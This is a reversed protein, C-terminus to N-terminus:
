QARYETTGANGLPVHLATTQPYAIARDDSRFHTGARHLYRGDINPWHAGTSCKGTASVGHPGPNQVDYVTARASHSQMTQHQRQGSTVMVLSLAMKPQHPVAYATVSVRQGDM